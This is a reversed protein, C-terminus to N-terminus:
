RSLNWDEKEKEGEVRYWGALTKGDETMKWELDGRSEEGTGVKPREWWKAQM